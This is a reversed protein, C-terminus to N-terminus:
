DTTFQFKNKIEQFSLDKMNGQSIDFNLLDTKRKLAQELAKGKISEIKKTFEDKKYGDDIEAPVIFKCKKKIDLITNKTTEFFYDPDKISKNPNTLEFSINTYLIDYDEHADSHAQSRGSYNLSGAFTQLATSLIAIVGVTLTFNTKIDEAFVDSSAMFSLISSVATIIIAPIVFGYNYYNYLIKSDGHTDRKYKAYEMLETLITTIYKKNQLEDINRLVKLSESFNVKLRDSYNLEYETDDLKTLVLKGSDEDRKIDKLIVDKVNNKDYIVRYRKGGEHDHDVKVIIGYGNILENFKLSENDGHLSNLAEKFRVKNLRRKYRSNEKVVLDYRRNQNDLKIKMNKITSASRKSDVTQVSGVSGQSGSEIGDLIESLKDNQKEILDDIEDTRNEPEFIKSAKVEKLPEIKTIEISVGEENDSM